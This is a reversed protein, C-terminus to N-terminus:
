KDEVEKFWKTYEDHKKRFQEEITEKRRRTLTRMKQRLTTM